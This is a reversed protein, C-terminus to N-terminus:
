RSMHQPSDLLVGILRTMQWSIVQSKADVVASPTTNLATCAAQLMRSTSHRGLWTRALHDVFEDFRLSKEPLWYSPQRYTAQNKPWWGGGLNWHMSFSSLMRSVGSLQVGNDPAGDPQPWQYVLTAGHAYCIARGFSNDNVPKHVVVGLSRITAILDDYPTRVKKDKSAWFEPAEFLARLVPKIKTGHKLYVKALRSVLKASPKDSVFRQALKTAIRRATAPHHALYKLYAKTVARGDARSNASTFGLVKVKGTTHRGSDYFPTYTTTDVTYGSLIKASSKVMKETYGATRGVTHLELLERGHNENPFGKVSTYNDLYLQMAPHLTAHYLISEFSTLAYKRLMADYEPRWVWARDDGAPVHLHNSWFDVMQELVLRRSYVRRLTSINGMDRAHQWARFDGSENKALKVSRSWYLQPYWSKLAAATSSEKIKGPTLQKEFWKRTSKSRRMAAYSAPTYGPGFRNLLHRQRATPVPTAKYPRVTPTAM